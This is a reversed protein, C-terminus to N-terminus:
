GSEIAPDDVLKMQIALSHPPVWGFHDGCPSRFLTGRSAATWNEEKTDKQADAPKRTPKGWPCGFCRKPHPESPTVDAALSVRFEEVIRNAKVRVKDDIPMLIGIKTKAFLLLGWDARKNESYKILEAYLALRVRHNDRVECPDQRRVIVPIIAGGSVLVKAPKGAVALEKHFLSRTYKGSVAWDSKLLSWWSVNNEGSAFKSLDVENSEKANKLENVFKMFQQSKKVLSFGALSLGPVMFLSTRGFGIAFLSLAVVAISAVTFVLPPLEKRLSGIQAELEATTYCPRYSLTPILQFDEKDEEEEKLQNAAVM